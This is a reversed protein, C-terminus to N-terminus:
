ESRENRGQEGVEDPGEAKAIAARAAVMPGLHAIGPWAHGVNAQLVKLAELLDPAAAILRADAEDPTTCRGWKWEKPVARDACARCPSISAVHHYSPDLEGNEGVGCLTAMSHDEVYWGWPGKTHKSM